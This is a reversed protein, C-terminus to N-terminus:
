KGWSVKPETPATRGQSAGEPKRPTVDDALAGPAVDATPAATGRAASSAATTLHEVRLQGDKLNAVLREGANLQIGSTAMPGKVTISGQRLTVDFVEDTGSWGVVFATGTVAI